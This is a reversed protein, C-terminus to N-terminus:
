QGGNLFIIIGTITASIGASISHTIGKTRNEEKDSTKKAEELVSVRTNIKNICDLKEKIERLQVRTDEAYHDFKEDLSSIKTELVAIKIEPSEM